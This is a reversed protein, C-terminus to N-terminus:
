AGAVRAANDEVWSAVAAMVARVRRSAQLQPHVLLWLDRSFVASPGLLRVLAPDEDAVLCPL